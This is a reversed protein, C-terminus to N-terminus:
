SELIEAARTLWLARDALSTDRYRVYSAQARALIDEIQAPTLPDFVRLTEGTAPNISAIMGM